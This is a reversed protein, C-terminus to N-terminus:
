HGLDKLKKIETLIRIQERMKCNLEQETLESDPTKLLVKIDRNPKAEPTHIPEDAGIRSVTSSPKELKKM